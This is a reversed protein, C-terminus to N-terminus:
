QHKHRDFQHTCKVANRHSHAAFPSQMKLFQMENKLSRLKLEINKLKRYEIGITNTNTNTVPEM